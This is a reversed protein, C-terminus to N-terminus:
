IIFKFIFTSAIISMFILNVYISNINITFIQSIFYVLILSVYHFESGSINQNTIFFTIFSFFFIVGIIDLLRRQFGVTKRLKLIVAILFYFIVLVLPWFSFPVVFNSFMSIELKDSTNFLYSSFLLSDLNLFTLIVNISPIMIIPTGIIIIFYRVDRNINGIFLIIIPVILIFINELILVSSITILLVADFLRKIKEKNNVTEVFLRTNRWASWIAASGLIFRMDISELPFSFIVLPYLLFHYANRNAREITLQRTVTDISYITLMFAGFVIIGNLIKSEFFSWIIDLTTYYYSVGMLLISSVILSTYNFKQFVKAIM